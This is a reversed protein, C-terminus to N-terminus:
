GGRRSIGQRSRLRPPSCTRRGKITRIAREDEDDIVTGTAKPFGCFILFGLINPKTRRKFQCGGPILQTLAVAGAPYRPTSDLHHLSEMLLGTAQSFEIWKVRPSPRIREAGREAQSEYHRCSLM